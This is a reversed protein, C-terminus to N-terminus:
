CSGFRANVKMRMGIENIRAKINNISDKNDKDKDKKSGVRVQWAGPDAFRV